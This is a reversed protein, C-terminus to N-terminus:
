LESNVFAGEVDFLELKLEDFSITHNYYLFLGVLLRIATDSAVPSFSETYDASPVQIYGKSV